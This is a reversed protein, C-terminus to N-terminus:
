AKLTAIVAAVESLDNDLQHDRGPLRHIFAQPVAHAYLGVHSPPATEDALGHFFHVPVGEPLRAGLDRPFQLEDAAWGGEGIYPAALLVIAGFARPASHETLVKLLIAGGVSHAVLVASAPLGDIARQLAVKWRAYSPEEEHPMRPYHIEFEDGLERQLSAVLRNDWEDHAGKGGGQVFLLQQKKRMVLSM